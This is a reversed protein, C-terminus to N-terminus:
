ENLGGHRYSEIDTETSFSTTRTARDALLETKMDSSGFELTVSAQDTLLRRPKFFVPLPLAPPSPSRKILQSSSM